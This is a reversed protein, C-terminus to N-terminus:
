ALWEEAAQKFGLHHRTSGIAAMWDGTPDEHWVRAAEYAKARAAKLDSTGLSRRVWKNDLKLLYWTAKRQDSRQAILLDDNLRQVNTYAAGGSRHSTQPM